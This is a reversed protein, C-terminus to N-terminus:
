RRGGLMEAYLRRYAANMQEASFHDLARQRGRRGMEAALVPQQALQRLREAIAAADKAPTLFGSEGHLVVERVGGVDTAVVPLGAAMAEIVTLPIGESISTLLFADAAHLLHDVDKRLGLLLVADGLGLSQVQQEVRQREPGEGVLVLRAAPMEARLRALATVATAHDKLYDLRAVTIAVFDTAALGLSRRIAQRDQGNALFPALNVGNYITRIRSAPIGENRQLAERVAGGVAVVRDGDKLLLRNALIRRPRPYDPFHRGHEQFRV